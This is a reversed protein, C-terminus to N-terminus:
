QLITIKKSITQNGCSFKLIYIGSRIGEIAMHSNNEGKSITTQAIKRGELDYLVINCNERAGKIQFRITGRAPNCLLAVDFDEALIADRISVTGYDNHVGCEYMLAAALRSLQELYDFNM